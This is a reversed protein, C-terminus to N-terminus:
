FSATTPPQYVWGRRGPAPADFAGAQWLTFSTTAVIGVGILVYTAWTPWEQAVLPEASPVFLRRSSARWRVWGGCWSGECSRLQVSSSPEAGAKAGAQPSVAPGPASRALVWRPCGVGAAVGRRDPHKRASDFVGEECPSHPNPLALRKVGQPVTLWSAWREQGGSAIRVHVPGDGAEVRYPRRALRGNVFVQDPGDYDLTVRRTPREPAALDDSADEIVEGVALSRGGDLLAAERWLARATGASDASRAHILAKLRLCEAMLWPAQPLGPTELLLEKARTLEEQAAAHELSSSLVRAESLAREVREVAQESPAPPPQPKAPEVLRIMRTEAYDQLARQESATPSTAGVWILVWTATSM